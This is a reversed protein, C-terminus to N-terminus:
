GNLLEGEKSQEAPQRPPRGTGGCATCAKLPHHDPEFAFGACRPCKPADTM